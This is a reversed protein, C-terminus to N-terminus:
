RTREQPPPPLTVPAGDSLVSQGSAIVRAGAEIGQVEVSAGHRAGPEVLVERVHAEDAALLFLKDIGAVSVVSEFPVLVAEETRTLIEARAFSGPRLEGTGNPVTVEVGFTRNEPDVTPNVRSVAGPFEKEGFAEVTLRVAQGVRVDPVHREPVTVRLKLPDSAVVRFVASGERLYEGESASRAAVAWARGGAPARLRADILRNRAVELEVQRQEAEAVLARAALREVDVNAAAVAVETEADKLEQEAVIGRGGAGLESLRKHKAEANVLQARARVVTAVQDVQFTEAPVRDVGLRALTQRLAWDAVSVARAFDDPELEALLAGSSVVDGVDAHIAKLRGTVKCSLTVDEDGFLTGVVDVTRQVSSREAAAISVPIGVPAGSKTEDATGPCGVLCAAVVLASAARRQTGHGLSRLDM